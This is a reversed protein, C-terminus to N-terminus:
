NGLPSGRFSDLMQRWFSPLPEEGSMGGSFDIEYTTSSANVASTLFAREDVGQWGPLTYLTGTLGHSHITQQPILHWSTLERQLEARANVGIYVYFDTLAWTLEIGTDNGPTTSPARLIGLSNPYQISYLEEPDTFTSWGTSSASATEPSTSALAPSQHTPSSDTRTPQTVSLPPSCAAALGAMFVSVLLARTFLHKMFAKTKIVQRVHLTGPVPSATSHTGPWNDM